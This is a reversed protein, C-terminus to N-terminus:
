KTVAVCLRDYLVKTRDKWNSSKIYHISEQLSTIRAELSELELTNLVFETRPNLPLYVYGLLFGAILSLVLAFTCKIVLHM